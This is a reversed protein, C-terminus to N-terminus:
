LALMELDELVTPFNLGPALPSLTLLFQQQPQQPTRGICGTDALWLLCGVVELLLCSVFCYYYCRCKTKGTWREKTEVRAFLLLLVLLLVASRIRNTRQKMQGSCVIGERYMPFTICYCRCILYICSAGNGQWHVYLCWNNGGVVQNVFPVGIFETVRDPEEM